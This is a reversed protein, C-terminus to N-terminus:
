RSQCLVARNQASPLKAASLRIKGRILNQLMAVKLRNAPGQMQERRLSATIGFLEKTAQIAPSDNGNVIALDAAFRATHM